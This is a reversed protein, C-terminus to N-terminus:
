GFLEKQMPEMSFWRVKYGHKRVDMSGIHLNMARAEADLELFESYGCDLEGSRDGKAVSARLSTIANVM